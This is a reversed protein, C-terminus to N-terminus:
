STDSPLNLFDRFFERLGRQHGPPEPQQAAGGFGEPGISLIRHWRHMVQPEDAPQGGEAPWLFNSGARMGSM